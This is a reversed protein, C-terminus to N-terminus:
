GSRPLKRAPWSKLTVYSIKGQVRMYAYHDLIASGSLVHEVGVIIQLKVIINSTVKKYNSM